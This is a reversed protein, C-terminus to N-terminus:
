KSFNYSASLFLTRGYAASLDNDISGHIDVNGLSSIKTVNLLNKVGASVIIKNRFIKKLATVDLIHYGSTKQQAIGELQGEQNYNGAFELYADNYKYYAAFQLGPNKLTWGASSTFDFSWFFEGPDDLRSRGTNVFSANLFVGPSYRYNIAAEFGKTSYERDVNFYKGWGPQSTSIALQVADRINNYFLGAEFGMMHRNRVFVYDASFTFNDAMEPKLDENGHIEHNNDIFQLYLQKLSPARFGRAYSTKFTFNEPKYDLSIGYILPSRFDSHKMLRLGPQIRLNRYPSIIFNLFGSFDSLNRNGGTRKGHAEEYNIDFGAQYEFANGPINSVFGRASLMKFVTTDHLDKDVAIEKKLNVLDNLYTVKKKKYFSYGAQLNLVFDDSNTFILNLRNNWRETFHYADLAKEYLNAQTLAGKDRLEENMYDTNLNIKFDPKKYMYGAGTIYQLKPKWTKYRSTDVPGWGPFFNRAGHMSFTHSGSKVAGNVSFNLTGASEYYTDTNFNLLENEYDRTIINIAGALANSGYVVSMPGEIIEIHDANELTLQSLDIRDAVRGTVPMGDILIKVHEGTLGRIRIFDGLIGDSRLQFGPETRLLEGLNNAAKLRIDKDDIIEIRYISRDAPQPRFQGTVVVKELTDPEIIIEEVNQASGRITYLLIYLCTLIFFRAQKYAFTWKRRTSIM